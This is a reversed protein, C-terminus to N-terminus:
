AVHYNVGEQKKFLTNKYYNGYKSFSSPYIALKSFAEAMWMPTAGPVKIEMLVSDKPQIPTGHSNASLTLNTDRGRIGTDFTIRLAAVELGYYAEREYAIFAKPELQYIRKMYRIEALEQNSDINLLSREMFAEATRFPLVARRKYVEGKFKRKMELFVKTESDAKGYSRMRFKEKFLPKELSHNILKFDPTDYYVNCITQKGYQDLKMYEEIIPLLSEYQAKTLLYKKEMRKMNTIYM